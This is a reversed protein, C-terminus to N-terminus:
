FVLPAYDTFLTDASPSRNPKPVKFQVVVSFDEINVNPKFAIMQCAIRIAIQLELVLKWRASGFGIMTTGSTNGSDIDDEDEEEEEDTTEQSWLGLSRLLTRNARKLAFKEYEALTVEGNQDADMREFLVEAYKEPDVNLMSLNMVQALINFMAHIMKKLEDLTIQGNNNSDIMSFAFQIKQKTNGKM